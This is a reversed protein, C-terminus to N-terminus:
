VRIFKSTIQVPSPPKTQLHKILKTFLFPLAARNEKSKKGETWGRERFYHSLIM